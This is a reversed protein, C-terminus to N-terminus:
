DLAGVSSDLELPLFGETEHFLRIGTFASHEAIRSTHPHRPRQPLLGLVGHGCEKGREQAAVPYVVEHVFSRVVTCLDRSVFFMIDILKRYTKDM